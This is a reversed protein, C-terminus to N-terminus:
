VVHLCIRDESIKEADYDRNTMVVVHVYGRVKAFIPRYKTSSVTRDKIDEILQYVGEYQSSDVRRSVDVVLNKTLGQDVYQYMMDSLSRSRVLAWGEKVLADAFTSKGEGGKKGVVWHITRRDPAEELEKRLRVQWPLNMTSLSVESSHVFDTMIRKSLIRNALDPDRIKFDDPDAEFEEEIRGRKRKNSGKKLYEGYEWPGDLRGEEKKCYDIADQPDRSRMREFHGKESVVRKVSALSTNRSHFQVVGQLHPTGKEGRELQYCLYQTTDKKLQPRYEGPNNITFCWWTAKQCPM